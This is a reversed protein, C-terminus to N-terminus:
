AVAGCRCRNVVLATGDRRVRVMCPCDALRQAEAIVLPDVRFTEVPGCALVRKRRPRAVLADGSVRFTEATM